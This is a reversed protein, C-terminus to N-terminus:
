WYYFHLLLQAVLAGAIMGGGFYIIVRLLRNTTRQEALLSALAEVDQRPQSALTLAQHALRPLQPFIHSYRPAEAKLKDLLGRWGVQDSM